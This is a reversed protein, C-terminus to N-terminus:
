YNHWLQWFNFGYFKPKGPKQGTFYNFINPM